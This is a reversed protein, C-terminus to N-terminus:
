LYRSLGLKDPPATAKRASRREESAMDAFKVMPGPRGLNWPQFASVPSIAFFLDFQEFGCGPLNRIHERPKANSVVAPDGHYDLWVVQQRFRPVFGAAQHDGGTEAVVIDIPQYLLSL